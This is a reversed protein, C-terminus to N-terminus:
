LLFGFAMVNNSLTNRFFSYEFLSHSVSTLQQVLELLSQKFSWGGNNHLGCYTINDFDCTLEDSLLRAQLDVDVEAAKAVSADDTTM